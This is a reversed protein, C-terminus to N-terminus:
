RTGYCCNNPFCIGEDFDYLRNSWVIGSFISDFLYLTSFFPQLLTTGQARNSLVFVRAAPDFHILFNKPPNEGGNTTYRSLPHLKNLM